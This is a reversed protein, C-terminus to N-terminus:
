KPRKYFPLAHPDSVIRLASWGREAAIAVARQILRRGVGKDQHEPAVWLHGIEPEGSDELAVVGILSDGSVAVIVPNDEIYDKTFVLQPRWERLWSEPYGWSAKARRALRTLGESDEPTANRFILDM